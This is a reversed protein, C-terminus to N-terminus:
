NIKTIKITEKVGGGNVQINYEGSAMNMLNMDFQNIGKFFHANIVNMQRGVGDRLILTGQGATPADVIVRTTTKAPNPFATVAKGLGDVSLTRIASKTITGDKDIQKIQYFVERTNLKNINFDVTEYNNLSRGNGLANITQISKFDRGDLSRLVEFNKNDQDKEVSWTLKANDGNKLAYFSLFNVPLIENNTEAYQYALYGAEENELDTSGGTFPNEPFSISNGPSSFFMKKYDTYDKGGVSVSYQYKTEPGAEAMHAVRIKEETGPPISSFQFRIVNFDNGVTLSSNPPNNTAISLGYNHFGGSTNEIINWAAVPFVDPHFSEVVALTPKPVVTAPIQVVFLLQSFAENFNQNTRLAFIATNTQGEVEKITGRLKVQALLLNSTSFIILIISLIKKM